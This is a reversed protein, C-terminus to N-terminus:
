RRRRGWRSGGDNDDEQQDFFARMAEDDAESASGLSSEEDSRGVGYGSAYGAEDQPASPTSDEDDDDEDDDDDEFLGSLAMTADADADADADISGASSQAAPSVWDDSEDVPDDFLGAGSVASGEPSSDAFGEPVGGTPSEALEYGADGLGDNLGEDADGAVDRDAILFEDGQSPDSAGMQNDALDLLASAVQRLRTREVGVKAALHDVESGMASRAEELEAVERRLVELHEARSDEMERRAEALMQQAQADSAAVTQAAETSAAALLRAAETRAESVTADATRQAMTLVSAARAPDDGSGGGSADGQGARLEAQRAREEAREAREVAEIAMSRLGAIKDDIQHLYNAVEDPDFGKKRETFQVNSVTGEMGGISAVAVGVGRLV